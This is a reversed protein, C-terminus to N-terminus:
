KRILHIKIEPKKQLVNKLVYKLNKRILDLVNQDSTKQDENLKLYNEIFETKFDQKILDLENYPLGIFSLQINKDITLDFNIVLSIM